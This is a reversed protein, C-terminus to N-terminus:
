SFKTLAFLSVEGKTFSSKNGHVNQVASQKSNVQKSDSIIKIVFVKLKM